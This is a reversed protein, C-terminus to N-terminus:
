EEEWFEWSMDPLKPAIEPGNRVGIPVGIFGPGASEPTYRFGRFTANPRRTDVHFTHPAFSRNSLVISLKGGPRKFALWRLDNDDLTHQAEVVQSNWPMHHIFSGVAHWNYRNWIWHGPNLGEPYNSDDPDDIPRWFGLSYGSAEANKYPKLAHFWFWTPAEGIQFWNMIHQTTNLCRSPSAPGELYEYENQFRPKGSPEPPPDVVASDSGIHHLVLADVLHAQGPDNLVPRILKFEWDYGTDAIITIDPNFARIAPAVALFTRTYNPPNYECTSYFNDVLPENQLGWMRIPIGAARLTELDRRCAAAFDQLFWDVNGQYEPDAEFGEAFCRLVNPAGSKGELRGTAKWYPAPSWYEFSVGEIGSSTIMERIEELQEPWRPQFHKQEPDLGRWYLGGALRCYRFGKLMEEYFRERETPTLDHPVSSTTEPLGRNGSAISDSQIEFGLGKVVQRHLDPYITLHSSSPPMAERSPRHVPYTPPPDAHINGSGLILFVFCHCRLFHGALPTLNIVTRASTLSIVFLPIKPSGPM